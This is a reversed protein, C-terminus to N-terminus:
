AIITVRPKGSMQKGYAEREEPSMDALRQARRQLLETYSGPERSSPHQNTFIRDGCFVNRERWPRPTTEQFHERMSANADPVIYWPEPMRYVAERAWTPCELDYRESLYEAAGACFAAWGRQEPTSHEPMRIPDDLLQQREDVYYLFFANMFNGVAIRFREGTVLEGYARALTQTNKPLKM